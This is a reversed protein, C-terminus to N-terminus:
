MIAEILEVLSEFEGSSKATQKAKSMVKQIPVKKLLAAAEDPEPELDEIWKDLMAKFSDFLMIIDEDWLCWQGPNKDIVRVGTSLHYNFLEKFKSIEIPSEASVSIVFLLSLGLAIEFNDFYFMSMGEGGVFQRDYVYKEFDERFTNWAEEAFIARLLSREEIKLDGSEILPPIQLIAEEFQQM